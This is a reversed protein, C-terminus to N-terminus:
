QLRRALEESLWELYIQRGSKNLHKLDCFHEDTLAISPKLLEAGLERIREESFGGNPERKSAVHTAYLPSVPVSVFVADLGHQALQELFKELQEASEGTLSPRIWQETRGLEKVINRSNPGRGCKLDEQVERHDIEWPDWEATGFLLWKIYGRLYFAEAKLSRETRALDDQLVIIKPRLALIEQTLPEFDEFVALNNVVRVVTVDIGHRTSLLRALDSQSGTAYKLRSNGILVIRTASASPLSVTESIRGQNFSVFGASPPAASMTVMAAFM